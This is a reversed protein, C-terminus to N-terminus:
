QRPFHSNNGTTITAECLPMRGHPRYGIQTGTCSIDTQQGIILSEQRFCQESTEARHETPRYRGCCRITRCVSVAATVIHFRPLRTINPTRGTQGSSQPLALLATRGGGCKTEDPYYQRADWQSTQALRLFHRRKM